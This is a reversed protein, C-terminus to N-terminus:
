LTMMRQGSRQSRGSVSTIISSSSSVSATSSKESGHKSVKNLMDKLKKAKGTRGCCQMRDLGSGKRCLAMTCYSFRWLRGVPNGRLRSDVFSEMQKMIYDQMAQVNKSYQTEERTTSVQKHSGAEIELKRISTTDSIDQVIQLPEFDHADLDDIFDIKDEIVEIGNTVTIHLKRLGTCFPLNPSFRGAAWKYCEWDVRVASISSIPTLSLKQIFTDLAKSSSFELTAGRFWASAAEQFFQRSVFMSNFPSGPFPRIEYTEGTGWSYKNARNTSERNM